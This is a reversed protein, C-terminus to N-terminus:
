KILGNQVYKTESAIIFASHDYSKILNTVFKLSKKNVQLILMEKKAGEYANKLAIISVGYGNNRLEKIMALSNRKTIVQLGVIGNVFINSITIGILTGAAYGGAYFIPILISNIETNLAEKAIIFWIFVELFAIISATKSSGKVMLITRISGLSVDIIRAFFIKLCIWLLM